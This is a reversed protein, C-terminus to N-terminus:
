LTRIIGLAIKGIPTFQLVFLCDDLLICSLLLDTLLIIVLFASQFNRVPAEYVLAGHRTCTSFTADEWSEAFSTQEGGSGSFRSFVSLLFAKKSRITPTM